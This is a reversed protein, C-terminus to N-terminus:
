GAMVRIIVIANLHDVAPPFLQLLHYDLLDLSVQIPLQSLNGKGHLILDPASCIIRCSSISIDTIQNGHSGPGKLIPLNGQVTGVSASGGNGFIHKVSQTCLGIHQIVTGIAQINIRLTTRGM